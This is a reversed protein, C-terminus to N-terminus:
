LTELLEHQQLEYSTVCKHICYTHVYSHTETHAPASPAPHDHCHTETDSLEHTTKVAPGTRQKLVTQRSLSVSLLSIIYWVVTACEAPSSCPHPLTGAKLHLWIYVCCSFSDQSFLQQSTTDTWFPPAMRLTHSLRPLTHSPPLLPSLSLPQSPIYLQTAPVLTLIATSSTM